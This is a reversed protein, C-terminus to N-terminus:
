SHHSTTHDPCSAPNTKCADTHVHYEANDPCSAPDTKCADTHVHHEANDPCSAPDTKCADTHTHYATVAATAAPETTYGPLSEAPPDGYTKRITVNASMGDVDIRCAGDGCVHSGNRASTAFDSTFNSSMADMTLTFGADEPLTLDLDGSAIDMDISYPVNVLVATVDTSAMDGDLKNLSGEYRLDGSACDLDLEEVACGEFVCDASAGDIEVERITMDVVRLKTSAMDIELNDLAFDKPVTVTLDKSKPGKFLFGAGRNEKCFQISLKGDKVAWVTEYKPESPATSHFQVADVDGAQVLISGSVWDIEIDRVRGDLTVTRDSSSYDKEATPATDEGVSTSSSIVLERWPKRFSDGLLGWTLVGILLVLVISWIVIRIIANNKM